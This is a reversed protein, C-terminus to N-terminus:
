PRNGFYAIALGVGGVAYVICRAREHSSVYTDPLGLARLKRFYSIHLWAAIPLALLFISWRILWDIPLGLLLAPFLWIGLGMVFILRAASRYAGLTVVQSREAEPLQLSARARLFQGTFVAALILAFGVITPWTM